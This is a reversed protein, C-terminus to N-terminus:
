ALCKLISAIKSHMRGDTWFKTHAKTPRWHNPNYIPLVVDEVCDLQFNPNKRVRGSVLDQRYHFNTWAKLDKPYKGFGPFRVAFYNIPSGCTLLHTLPRRHAFILGIESGLSHGFVVKCSDPHQKAVEDYRDEILKIVQFYFNDADMNETPSLAIIDCIYDCAWRRLGQYWDDKFWSFIKNEKERLLHSHDIPHIRLDFDVPLEKRIGNVLDNYYTQANVERAIGHILFLHVQKEVRSKTDNM